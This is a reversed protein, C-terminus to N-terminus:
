KKLRYHYEVNFPEGQFGDFIVEKLRDEVCKAINTGEFAGKVKINDFNGEPKITLSVILLGKADGVCGDIIPRQLEMLQKVQERTLPTKPEEKKKEEIKEQAKIKEEKKEEVKPQLDPPIYGPPAIIPTPTGPPLTAFLPLDISTATEQDPLIFLRFDARLTQPPGLRLLTLKHEGAKLPYRVLPTMQIRKGDIYIMAEPVSLITVTGNGKFEEVNTTSIEQQQQPNQQQAQNPLAKKLNVQQRGKQSKQTLSESGVGRGYIVLLFVFMLKYFGRLVVMEKGGEM